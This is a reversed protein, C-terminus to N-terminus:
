LHHEADKPRPVARVIRIQIQVPENPLKIGLTRGFKSSLDTVMMEVARFIQYGLPKRHDLDFEATAVLRDSHIEPRLDRMVIQKPM